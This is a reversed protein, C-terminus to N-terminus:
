SSNKLTVSLPSGDSSANNNHGYNLWLGNVNRNAEEVTFKQRAIVNGGIVKRGLNEVFSFYAAYSDGIWEGDAYQM